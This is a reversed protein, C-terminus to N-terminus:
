AVEDLYIAHLQLEQAVARLKEIEQEDRLVVEVHLDFAPYFAGFEGLRQEYAYVCQEAGTVFLQWQIQRRYHIPLSPPKGGTKFEGIVSHDLSLADPTAMMWANGDGEAAILWDNPLIGFREKIEMAIVPERERGWAMFENDIIPEPNEILALQERMGAPTAAKAVQTATVGRERAALWAERDTSRAIFRTPEIM